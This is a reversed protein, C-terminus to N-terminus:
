PPLQAGRHLVFRQRDVVVVRRATDRVAGFELRPNALPGPAMIKGVEKLDAALRAQRDTRDIGCRFDDLIGM